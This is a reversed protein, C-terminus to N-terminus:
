GKPKQQPQTPKSAPNPAQTPKGPQQPTAPKTTPTPNPKQSPQGPKQPNNM